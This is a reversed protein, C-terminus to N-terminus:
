LFLIYSAFCINDCLTPSWTIPSTLYCHSADIEGWLWINCITCDLEVELDTAYAILNLYTVSM